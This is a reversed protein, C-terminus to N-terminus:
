RRLDPPLTGGNLFPDLLKKQPVPIPVVDCISSAASLLQALAFLLEILIAISMVIGKTIRTGDADM